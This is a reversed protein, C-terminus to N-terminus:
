EVVEGDIDNIVEFDGKGEMDDRRGDDRNREGEDDNIVDFTIIEDGTGDEKASCEEHELKVIVTVVVKEVTITVIAGVVLIWM